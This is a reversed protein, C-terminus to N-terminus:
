RHAPDKYIFYITLWSSFIIMLVILINMYLSTLQPKLIKAVSFNSCSNNNACSHNEESLEVYGKSLKTIIVAIIDRIDPNIITITKVYSKNSQIVIVITNHFAAWSTEM